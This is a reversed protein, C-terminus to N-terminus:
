WGGVALWREDPSLAMAFIKGESGAGIQGRITRVTKGTELDWVRVLKDNSASVLYRGDATFVVDRIVAKHGGPDIQLISPNNQATTAIGFTLLIFYILNKLM